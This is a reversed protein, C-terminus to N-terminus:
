TVKEICGPCLHHDNDRQMYIPYTPDECLPYHVLKRLAEAPDARVAGLNSGFRQALAPAAAENRQVARAAPVPDFGVGGHDPLDPVYVQLGRWCLNM